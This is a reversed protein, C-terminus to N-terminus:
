LQIEKLFRKWERRAENAITYLETNRCAPCGWIEKDRMFPHTAVMHATGHWGCEPCICEVVANQQEEHGTPHLFM